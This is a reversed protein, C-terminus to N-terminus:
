RMDWPDIYGLAVALAELIAGFIILPVLALGYFLLTSM